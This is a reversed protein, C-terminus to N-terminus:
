WALPHQADGELPSIRERLGDAGDDSRELRQAFGEEGSQDTNPRFGFSVREGRSTITFRGNSEEVFGVLKFVRKLERAVTRQGQQDSSKHHMEQLQRTLSANSGRVNGYLGEMFMADGLTGDDDIDAGGKILRDALQLNRRMKILDNM